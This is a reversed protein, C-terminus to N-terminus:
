VEYGASQNEVNEALVYETGCLFGRECNISPLNAEGRVVATVSNFTTLSEGPCHIGGTGFPHFKEEKVGSCQFDLSNTLNLCKMGRSM